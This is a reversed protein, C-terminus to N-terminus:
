VVVEANDASPSCNSFNKPGLHCSKYPCGRLPRFALARHSSEPRPGHPKCSTRPKWVASLINRQYPGARYKSGVANLTSSQLAILDTALKYRLWFSRRSDRCKKMASSPSISMAHTSRAQAGKTFAGVKVEPGHGCEQELFRMVLEGAHLALRESVKKDSHNVFYHNPVALLMVEDASPPDNNVKGLVRTALKEKAEEFNTTKLSSRIGRRSRDDYRFAYYRNRGDVRGIWQGCIEFLNEKPM